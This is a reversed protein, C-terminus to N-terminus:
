LLLLLVVVLGITLLLWVFAFLVAVAAVGCGFWHYVVVLCFVTRPKLLFAFPVSLCSRRVTLLPLSLDFLM